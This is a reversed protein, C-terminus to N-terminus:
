CNKRIRKTSVFGSRIINYKHQKTSLNHKFYVFISNKTIGSTGFSELLLLSIETIYALFKIGTRLFHFFRAQNQKEVKRIERRLFFFM